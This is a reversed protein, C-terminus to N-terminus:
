FQVGVKFWIYNGELTKQTGIQPLWKVEAAFASKGFQQAYSIVPGVGTTTEEFSGLRAGSGYTTPELGAPRV